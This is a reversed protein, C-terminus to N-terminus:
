PETKIYNERYNRIRSNSANNIFECELLKFILCNEPPDPDAPKFTDYGFGQSM